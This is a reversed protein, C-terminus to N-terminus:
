INATNKMREAQFQKKVCHGKISYYDVLDYEANSTKLVDTFTSFNQYYIPIKNKLMFESSIKSLTKDPGDKYEPYPRTRFSYQFNSPHNHQQTMLWFYNQINNWYYNPEHTVKTIENDKLLLPLNSFLRQFHSLSYKDVSSSSNSVTSVKFKDNKFPPAKPKDACVGIFKLKNNNVYLGFPYINQTNFKSQTFLIQNSNPRKETLPYFNGEGLANYFDLSHNNLDFKDEIYERKIPKIITSSFENFYYKSTITGLYLYNIVKNVITEAFDDYFITQLELDLVSGYYNGTSKPTGFFKFPENEILYSFLGAFFMPFKKPTYSNCFYITLDENYENKFKEEILTLDINYHKIVESYFEIITYDDKNDIPLEFYQNLRKCEKQINTVFDYETKNLFPNNNIREIATTKKTEMLDIISEIEEFDLSGNKNLIDPISKIGIHELASLPNEKILGIFDLFPQIEAHENASFKIINNM